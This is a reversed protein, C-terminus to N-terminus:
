IEDNVRVQQKQLESRLFDIPLKITFKTGKGPESEVEITGNHNKIIKYSISLGLGTGEGVPKTTFFPDFINSISEKSIGSGNDEFVIIIHNDEFRTKIYVDGKDVIAYSANDLINLFVQNLQGTYCDMLPINGFEKHVTIKNKYKNHLINLSTKIEQHVDIEKISLEELRSFNKLDLIINRCREAGDKCSRILEPLDQCIFNYDLETRLKQVQKLDDESLKASIQEYLEIIKILDSSYNNLHTLNGYIFNIPNNIEHTIGAVLEGLSRMKETHVLMVQTEKLESNAKKLEDNIVLVEQTREKVKEELSSHVANLKEAMENFSYVLRNIEQYTSKDIKYKLNGKAIEEAGIVLKNIPNTVRRAMFLALIIGFFIFTLALLINNQLLVTVFSTSSNDSYFGASILYHTTTGSIKQFNSYKTEPFNFKVVKNEIINYNGTTKGILEPISSWICKRSNNDIISIYLVLYNKILNKSFTTIHDFEHKELNERINEFILNAVAKQNMNQQIQNQGVIKSTIYFYYGSLFIVTTAISLSMMVAFQSWLNKRKQLFINLIDPINM